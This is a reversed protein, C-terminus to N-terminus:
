KGSVMASDGIRWLGDSVITDSTAIHSATFVAVVPETHPQQRMCKLVPQGCPTTPVAALLPVKNESGRGAKGGCLDGGLYANDIDVRGSLERRNERLRMAEMIKHRTLWARRDNVGLQRMLDLASGNNKSQTLWQVALFSRSLPMKRSEFITGTILSCQHASAGCQRYHLGGREFCTHTPDGRRPKM